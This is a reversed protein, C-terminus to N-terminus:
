IYINELKAGIIKLFKDCCEIIEFKKNIMKDGIFHILKAEEKQFYSINQHVLKAPSVRKEVSGEVSMRKNSSVLTPDVM